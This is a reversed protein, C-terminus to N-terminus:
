LVPAQEPEAEGTTGADQVATTSGSGSVSQEDNGKESTKKWLALTSMFKLFNKTLKPGRLQRLGDEGFKGFVEDCAQTFEGHIQFFVFWCAECNRFRPENDKVIPHGCTQNVQYKVTFFKRRHEKFESRTIEIKEGDDGLRYYDPHPNAGPAVPQFTLQEAGYSPPFVGVSDPGM